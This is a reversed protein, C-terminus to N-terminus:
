RSKGRLRPARATEAAAAGDTRLAAHRGRGRLRGGLRRLLRRRCLLARLLRRRSRGAATPRRDEAPEGEASDEAVEEAAASKEAEKQERQERDGGHDAHASQHPAPRLCRLRDLEGSHAFGHGDRYLILQGRRARSGPHRGPEVRRAEQARGLVVEQPQLRCIVGAPQLFDALEGGVLEVLLQLALQILFALGLDETEFGLQELEGGLRADSPM